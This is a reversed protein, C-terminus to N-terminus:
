NISASASPVLRLDSPMVAKIQALRDECHRMIGPVKIRLLSAAEKLVERWREHTATDNGRVNHYYAAELVGL